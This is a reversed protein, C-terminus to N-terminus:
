TKDNKISVRYPYTNIDYDYKLFVYQNYKVVTIM